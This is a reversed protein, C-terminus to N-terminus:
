RPDGRRKIAEELAGVVREAGRGDILDRGRWTLERRIAPDALQDIADGLREEIQATTGVFIAAGLDTAARIVHRQNEAVEILATPVGLCLLEWTTVGATAVAADASDFIAAVDIPDVVVELGPRAGVDEAAPGQVVLTREFVASQAVVDLVRSSVAAVDAGGLTVLLTGSSRDRERYRGAFGERILAYEPGLLVRTEPLTEYTTRDVPNTNVLLDVFFSGWGFDDVAAVVAGRDRAARHDPAGFHYGDYVVVDGPHVIDLWRRAGTGGTTLYDLERRRLATEVAPDQNVVLITELGAALSAQALAISRM